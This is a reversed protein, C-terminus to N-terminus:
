RPTRGSESGVRAAHRSHLAIDLAGGDVSAAIEDLTLPLRRRWNPYQDVTGPVNIQESVALLDDLAVALLRSKAKALYRLVGFYDDQEIAEGRLVDSLMQR